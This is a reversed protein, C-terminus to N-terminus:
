GCGHCFCKDITSVIELAERTDGVSMSHKNTGGFCYGTKLTIHLEDSHEVVRLIRRDLKEVFQADTQKARAARNSLIRHAMAAHYEPETNGCKAMPDCGLERAKAKWEKGHGRHVPDTLAHAIEHLITDRVHEFSSSEVYTSGLEILKRYQFCRGFTATLRTNIAVKWGVLGHDAMMNEAMMVATSIEM